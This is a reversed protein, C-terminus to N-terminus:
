PMPTWSLVRIAALIYTHRHTQFYRHGRLERTRDCGSRDTACRTVPCLRPHFMGATQLASRADCVALRSGKSDAEVRGLHQPMLSDHRSTWHYRDGDDASLYHSHRSPVKHDKAHLGDNSHRCGGFREM